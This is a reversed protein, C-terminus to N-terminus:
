SDFVYNMPRISVDMGETVRLFGFPREEERDEEMMEKMCYNLFCFLKLSLTGQLQPM